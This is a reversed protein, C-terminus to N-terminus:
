SIRPTKREKHTAGVKTTQTGGTLLPRYYYEFRPDHMLATLIRENRVRETRFKARRKKAARNM